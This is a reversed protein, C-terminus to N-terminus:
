SRTTVEPSTVWVSTATSISPVYGPEAIPNVDTPGVPERCHECVMVLGAVHGGFTRPQLLRQRSRLLFRLPEASPQAIGGKDLLGLGFRDPFGACIERVM